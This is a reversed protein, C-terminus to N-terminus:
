GRVVLGHAEAKRWSPTSIQQAGWTLFVSKTVVASNHLFVAALELPFDGATSTYSQSVPQVATPGPKALFRQLIIYFLATGGGDGLVCVFGPGATGPRSEYRDVHVNVPMM